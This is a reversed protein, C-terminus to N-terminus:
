RVINLQALMAAGMYDATTTPDDTLITIDMPSSEIFSTEFTDEAITEEAFKQEVFTDEAITEEAFKQEVFTEEEEQRVIPRLSFADQATFATRRLKVVRGDSLGVGYWTSSHTPVDLVTGCMGGNVVVRQGM